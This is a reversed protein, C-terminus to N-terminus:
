VQLNALEALASARCVWLAPVSVFAMCVLTLGSLQYFYVLGQRLCHIRNERICEHQLYLLSM